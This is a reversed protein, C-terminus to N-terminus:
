EKYKLKEEVEKKSFVQLHSTRDWESFTVIVREKEVILGLCYEIPESSFKFPASYRSLKMNNDFVVFAHFYRRPDEYSVIHTIFWIEKQHNFGCTSGRFHSFYKPTAIERELKLINDTGLTCVKLPHWNYLVKRQGKFNFYVWNKECGANSFNTKYETKAIADKDADYKGGVVGIRGDAHQSVGIFSDEFMRVDETGIYRTEARVNEKFFKRSTPLFDKNLEVLENVTAINGNQIYRGDPMIKYNVYRINMRYAGKYPVICPSSSFFPMEDITTTNTFDKSFIPTFKVIYFKLNSLASTVINQSAHSNLVAVIQDSVDRNGVYYSYVIYEYHLKYTYIDNGLFLFADKEPHNVNPACLKWFTDALKWKSRSRYHNVLEYLAEIRDPYYEYGELWAYMAEGLQGLAKYCLGIRYWSYWVEQNWGGLAIRKRYQEIAEKHRSVDHLSNALYFRYRVENEPEDIIGQTLLRIDREFKDSKSGGDGVDLIFMTDKPIIAMSTNPPRDIYEHTVGVYKFGEKNRVIRCNHYYFSPNGQLVSYADHTLNQKMFGTVTQLIMDADLLLVYDAPMKRAAELAFNRNHAFNKFPEHVVQGKVGLKDWYEKIIEPTGDTSGTDCISYCDILDKVSDFLRTIIKSENKVIQCLCITVM